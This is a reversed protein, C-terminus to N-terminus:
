SNLYKVLRAHFRYFSETVLGRNKKREKIKKKRMKFAYQIEKYRTEISNEITFKLHPTSHHSHFSRILNNMWKNEIVETISGWRWCSKKRKSKKHSFHEFSIEMWFYSTQVLKSQNGIFHFQWISYVIISLLWCLLFNEITQWFFLESPM